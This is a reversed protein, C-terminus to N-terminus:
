DIRVLAAAGLRSLVPRMLAADLLIDRHPLAQDPALATSTPAIM